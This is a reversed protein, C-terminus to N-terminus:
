SLDLKDIQARDERPVHLSDHFTYVASAPQDDDVFRSHRRAHASLDTSLDLSSTEELQVGRHPPYSAPLLHFKLHGKIHFRVRWLVGLASCYSFNMIGSAM